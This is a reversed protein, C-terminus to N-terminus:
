NRLSPKPDASDSAFVGQIKRAGKPIAVSGKAVKGIREGQVLVTGGELIQGNGVFVTGNAFVTDM